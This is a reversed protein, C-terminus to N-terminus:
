VRSVARLKPDLECMGDSGIGLGVNNINYLHESAVVYVIDCIERESYLGRLRAFTEPRVLKDRTLETAYDLAARQADTFLDSAAYSDLADFRAQNAMSERLAAWRSADMCFLCGNLSAVRERVLLVTEHPLLLKKDLRSIKMYFTTFALPMRASFVSLPGAVKGFQKRMFYYALKLLPNAPREVPPLFPGAAEPAPTSRPVAATPNMVSQTM